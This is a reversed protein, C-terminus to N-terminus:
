KQHNGRGIVAEIRNRIKNKFDDVDSGDWIICNYQRIDFHLNELDDKKCTWIVELNLGKAFGAEFYVGGRHGTFDALVLRSRRIQAIIEDDIKDNHERLDVRHPKYGAELIGKSIAEEYIRQMDDNFWMAVFCQNSDPKRKKLQELHAWGNPIIKFQGNNDEHVFSSKKLYSIVEFLECINECWAASITSDTIGVTEGAYRTKKEFVLLLKDAKEHFSPSNLNSLFDISSLTIKYNPNERLYGSFNARQRFTLETAELASAAQWEIFYNGCRRCNIKLMGEDSLRDLHNSQESCVLCNALVM